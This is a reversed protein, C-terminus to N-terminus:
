RPLGLPNGASAGTAAQGGLINLPDKDAAKKEGGGVQYGMGTLINTAHEGYVPYGEKSEMGTKWAHQLASERGAMIKLVTAMNKSWQAPSMNPDFSAKWADIEPDTAAAKKLLSAVESAVATSATQLSSVSPDGTKTRVYNIMRNITPIDSQAVGQAMERLIALHDVATNLAVINDKEKGATFSKRTAARSDYKTADYPPNKFAQGVMGMIRMGHESRMFQASPKTRYEGILQVLNRENENPISALYAEGELGPAGMSGATEATSKVPGMNIDFARTEKNWMYRNGRLTTTPPAKGGAEALKAANDMAAHFLDKPVYGSGKYMGALTPSMEELAASAEKTLPMLEGSAIREQRKKQAEMKQVDGVYLKPIRREPAVVQGRFRMQPVVSEELPAEGPVTMTTATTKEPQLPAPPPTAVGQFLKGLDVTPPAAVTPAASLSGGTKVEIPLTEAEPVGTPRMGPIPTEAEQTAITRMTHAINFERAEKESRDNELQRDMQERRMANELDQQKQQKELLKQRQYIGLVDNIAAGAAGLATGWGSVVPKEIHIYQPM